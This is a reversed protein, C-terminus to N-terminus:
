LYMVQYKLLGKLNMKLKMTNSSAMAPALLFIVQHLAFFVFLFIAKLIKKEPGAMFHKKIKGTKIDMIDTGHEFTGIWLNDGDALLGHINSYAISTKDGTPKFRM